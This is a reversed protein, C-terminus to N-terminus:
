KVPKGDSKALFCIVFLVVMIKVMDKASKMKVLLFLFIPANLFVKLTGFQVILHITTVKVAVCSCLTNRCSMSSTKM